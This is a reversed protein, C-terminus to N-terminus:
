VRRLGCGAAGEALVDLGMGDVPGLAGTALLQHEAARSAGWALLAATLEYPDPGELRVEALVSGDAGTARAVVRSSSAARAAADPGGTSGPAMRTSLQEIGRRVPGIRGVIGLAASGVQLPRAVAGFWGLYVGVERLAPALRPLTIHESGAISAAATSRGGWEFRRVHAAMREPVLRGGRFAFSPELMMRAGSARTGGSIQLGSALYGIEVAVADDGADRLALAGALNGPVFDYGLAPLLGVGTDVARPAWREFVRRIFPGEGTSDLYHAGADVAAAVAPEGFRLFPGVTTVLVDGREVLAGVTDPRAVDAVATALGGLEDALAEVRTRNRGALVPRLGREVMARATLDGTFGTAGFVVIRGAM